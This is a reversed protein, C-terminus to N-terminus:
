NIPRRRGGARNRGVLGGFGGRRDNGGPSNRRYIRDCAGRCVLALALRGLCRRRSSRIFRDCRYRRARRGCRGGRWGARLARAPRHAFRGRRHIIGREDRRRDERPGLGLIRWRRQHNTAASAAGFEPQAHLSGQARRTAAFDEDGVLDVILWHDLQAPSCGRIPLRRIVPCSAVASNCDNESSARRFIMTSSPDPRSLSAAKWSAPHFAIRSLIAVAQM